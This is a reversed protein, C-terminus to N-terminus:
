EVDDPRDQPASISMRTPRPRGIVSRADNSVPNSVAPQEEDDMMVDGFLRIIDATGPQDGFSGCEVLHRYVAMSEGSCSFALLADLDATPQKRAERMLYLRTLRWTREPSWHPASRHIKALLRAESRTISTIMGQSMRIVEALVALVPRPDEPDGDLM